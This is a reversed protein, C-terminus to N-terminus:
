TTEVEESWLWLVCGSVGQLFLTLRCHPSKISSSLLSSLCRGALTMQSVARFSVKEARVMAGEFPWLKGAPQNKM